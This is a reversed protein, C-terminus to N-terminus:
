ARSAEEGKGGASPPLTQFPPSLTAAMIQQVVADVDDRVAKENFRVVRYGESTLWATRAADREAAGEVTHYYGDIEILLKSQHHGFDIIFDGIPVQRRFNMQLPRLAKWLIREAVTPDKRFKRARRVSGAAPRSRVEGKGRSPPLTPSPPSPGDAAYQEGAQGRAERDDETSGAVTTPDVSEEAVTRGPRHPTAGGDGARGGQLPFPSSNSM